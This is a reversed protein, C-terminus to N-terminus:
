FTLYPSVNSQREFALQNGFRFRLSNIPLYKTLFTIKEECTKPGNITSSIQRFNMYDRPDRKWSQIDEYRIEKGVLLSEIFKYDVKEEDSLDELNWMQRGFEVDPITEIDFTFCHM